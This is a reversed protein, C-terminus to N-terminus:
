IIDVADLVTAAYAADGTVTTAARWDARTTAWRLFDVTSSTVVDDPLTTGETVRVTGSDRELVVHRAAPGDLRLGLPRTLVPYLATGCMQPLGSLMWDLAPGLRADDMPIPPQRLPGHPALLDCALHVLHDFAATTSMESLRYTGLDALPIATEAMGPAELMELVALGAASQEGYYAAAQEPTWHARERVAADNLREAQTITKDQPLCSPDALTNFFFAMHVIVDQVRWGPCASERNWDDATLGQVVRLADEVLLRTGAIGAASM